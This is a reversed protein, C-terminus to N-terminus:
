MLPVLLLVWLNNLVELETYEFKGEGSFLRTFPPIALRPLVTYDAGINNALFNGSLDSLAGNPHTKSWIEDKSCLSVPRLPEM